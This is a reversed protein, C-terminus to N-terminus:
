TTVTWSNVMRKSALAITENVIMKRAEVVKKSVAIDSCQSLILRAYVEVLSLLRGSLCTANSKFM